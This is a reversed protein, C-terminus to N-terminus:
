YSLERVTSAKMSSTLRTETCMSGRPNGPLRVALAKQGQRNFSCRLNFSGAPSRSDGSTSCAFSIQRGTGNGPM